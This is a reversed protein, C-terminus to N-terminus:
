IELLINSSIKETLIKYCLCRQCMKIWWCESFIESIIHMVLDCLFDQADLLIGRPIVPYTLFMCWAWLTLSDTGELEWQASSQTAAARPNTQFSNWFYIEALIDSPNSYLLCDNRTGAGPPLLKTSLWSKKLWVVLSCTRNQVDTAM